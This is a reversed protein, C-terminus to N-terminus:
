NCRLKSEVFKGGHNASNLSKSASEHTRRDSTPQNADIKHLAIDCALRLFDKKKKKKKKKEKSGEM